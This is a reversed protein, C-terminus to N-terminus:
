RDGNCSELYVLCYDYLLGGLGAYTLLLKCWRKAAALFGPNRRLGLCYRLTTAEGAALPIHATYYDVLVGYAAVKGHRGGLRQLARAKKRGETKVLLGSGPAQNDAILGKLRTASIRGALEIAPVPREQDKDGSLLNIGAGLPVLPRGDGFGLAAAMTIWNPTATM